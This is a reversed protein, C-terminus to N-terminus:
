SSGDKIRKLKFTDEDKQIVNFNGKLRLADEEGIYASTFLNKIKNTKDDDITPRRIKLRLIDMVIYDGLVDVVKQQFYLRLHNPKSKVSYIKIQGIINDM